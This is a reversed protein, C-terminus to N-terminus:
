KGSFFIKSYQIFGSTDFKLNKYRFDERVYLRKQRHTLLKLCYIKQTQEVLENLTEDFSHQKTIYIKELTHIVLNRHYDDLFSLIAKPKTFYINLISLIKQKGFKAGGIFLDISTDVKEDKQLDICKLEIKIGFQHLKSQLILAKDLYNAHSSLHQYGIKLTPFDDGSCKITAFLQQKQSSLWNSAVTETKANNIFDEPQILAYITERMEENQLPGNRMNLVVYDTALQQMLLEKQPIDNPYPNFSIGYDTDNNDFIFEIGDIYPRKKFYYDFTTLKINYPSLSGLMFPGCGVLGDPRDKPLIVTRFSSLLEPLVAFPKSLTLIIEYDHVIEFQEYDFYPKAFQALRELSFQIDAACVPKMHHFYAGKRLIFRWKQYDTTEYDFLLNAEMEGTAENEKFLPEHIQKMLHADWNSIAQLPDLIVNQQSFPLRLIHQLKENQQMGYQQQLWNQIMPNKVMQYEGLFSYAEEFQNKEWYSIFVHIICDEKSQLITIFPKKGRGKNVEWKIIQQQQLKKVITKAYRTSCQWIQALEEVSTEKRVNENFFDFLRLQYHM